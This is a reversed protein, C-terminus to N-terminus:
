DIAATDEEAACRQRTLRQLWSGYMAALKRQRRSIYVPMAECRVGKGDQQNDDGSTGAGGLARQLAALLGAMDYGGTLRQPCANRADNAVFFCGAMNM